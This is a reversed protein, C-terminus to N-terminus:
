SSQLSNSIAKLAELHNSNLFRVSMVNQFTCRIGRPLTRRNWKFTFHHKDNLVQFKLSIKCQHFHLPHCSLQPMKSQFLVWYPHVWLFKYSLPYSLDRLELDLVLSFVLIKPFSYLNQFLNEGIRFKAKLDKSIEQIWSIM